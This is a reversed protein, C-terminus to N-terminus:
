KILKSRYVLFQVIYKASTAIYVKLKAPQRWNEVQVTSHTLSGRYMLTHLHKQLHCAFIEYNLGLSM